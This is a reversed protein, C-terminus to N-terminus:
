VKDGTELKRWFKVEPAQKVGIGAMPAAITGCRRRLV